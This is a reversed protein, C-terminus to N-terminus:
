DIIMCQPNNKSLYEKLDPHLKLLYKDIYLQFVPSIWYQCNEPPELNVEHYDSYDSSMLFSSKTMILLSLFCATVKELRESIESVLISNQNSRNYNSNNFQIFMKGNGHTYIYPPLTRCYDEAKALLGKECGSDYTYFGICGGNGDDRCTAALKGDVYLDASFANTEQSMGEYHKLKKLEIKM